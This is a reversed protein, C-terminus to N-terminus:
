KAQASERKFWNAYRAEYEQEVLDKIKQDKIKKSWGLYVQAQISRAIKQTLFRYLSLFPAQLRQCLTIGFADAHFVEKIIGQNALMTIAEELRLVAESKGFQAQNEKVKTIHGKIKEMWAQHANKDWVSSRSFTKELNRLANTFCK